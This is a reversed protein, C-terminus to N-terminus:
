RVRPWGRSRTASLDEREMVERLERLALRRSAAHLGFSAAFLICILAAIASVLTASARVAILVGFALWGIVWLCFAVQGAIRLYRAVSFGDFRAIRSTM